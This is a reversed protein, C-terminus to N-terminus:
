IALYRKNGYEDEDYYEFYEEDKDYMDYSVELHVPLEDGTDLMVSSPEVLEKINASTINNELSDLENEIDLTRDYVKALLTAVQLNSELQSYRVIEEISALSERISTITPVTTNIKM